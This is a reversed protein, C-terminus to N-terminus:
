GVSVLQKKLSETETKLRKIQDSAEEKDDKEKDDKDKADKANKEDEEDEEIDNEQMERLTFHSILLKNNVKMKTVIVHKHKQCIWDGVKSDLRFQARLHKM